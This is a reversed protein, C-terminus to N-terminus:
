REAKPVPFVGGPEVNIAVIREDGTSTRVEIRSTSAFNAFERITVGFDDIRGVAVLAFEDVKPARREASRRDAPLPGLQALAATLVNTATQDM